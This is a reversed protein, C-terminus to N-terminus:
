MLKWKELPSRAKRCDYLNWGKWRGASEHGLPDFGINEPSIVFALQSDSCVRSLSLATLPRSPAEAKPKDAAIARLKSLIKWNPDMLPLLVQSRRQVELATDRSFVVGASQDVALYNPRGLTFWVFGGVDRAPTVLVTSTPPIVREWDSFEAVDAAAGLTRTEKLAAPLDFIVLVFLTGALLIQSWINNIRMLRWVMAVLLAASFPLAFTDKSQVAGFFSEGTVRISAAFGCHQLSIWVVAAVLLALFVWRLLRATRDSITARMAWLVLALSICALGNTATLTWGAILLLSCLPGCKEDRWVQLVTVPLLLISVFVTIWVWRWAQGQVLLAIPGILSAVAAVALGTAGVIAAAVCLKHVREDSVALATIAVCFFPRANLTWDRFSWLQLFLFQSREQVIGLWVPDMIPLIRSAWSVNVAVSAIALTALIGGFAGVVIMQNSLSLCLLLLLGPLAILPHVFLALIAVVIALRKRERLYCLLSTVILGEAPLRATLFDEAFRFVGSGGYNGATILLCAVALWACDRGGIARAAGFAAALFWVTFLLTLFRAAQELGLAEIFWAYFPSFATFRDQSTNQLYLDSALNPHIRAIAQFAYIQGDDTIGHYGRLLLWLGALLLALAFASIRTQFGQISPHM